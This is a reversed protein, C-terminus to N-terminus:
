KLKRKLKIVLSNQELINPKVFGVMLPVFFFAYMIGSALLIKQNVWLQFFPLFFLVTLLLVILQLDSWEENTFIVQLPKNEQRMTLFCLDTDQQSLIFEGHQGYLCLFRHCLQFCYCIFICSVIGIFQHNYLLSTPVFEKEITWSWEHYM